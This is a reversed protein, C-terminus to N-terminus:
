SLLNVLETSKNVLMFLSYDMNQKKYILIQCIHTWILYM